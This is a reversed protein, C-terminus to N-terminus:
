DQVAVKRLVVRYPLHDSAVATADNRFITSSAPELLSSTLIYDIRRRPATSPVTGTPTNEGKVLTDKLRVTLRQMAPATLNENMDGALIVPTDGLTAVIAEAQALREQGNLGLHTNKVDIALGNWSVTVTLCGRPEANVPNPLAQNHHGAVPLRTLLANGYEGGDFRYNPEFFAQMGLKEALLAPFDLGGTRPLGRDVEQLCVVDPGADKIISVIRDLDVLGDMGEAHHINYTLVVLEETGYVSFCCASVAFLLTVSTQKV